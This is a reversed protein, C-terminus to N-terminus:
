ESPVGEVEGRPLGVADWAEDSIFMFRLKLAFELSGGDMFKKVADETVLCWGGTRFPNPMPGKMDEATTDDSISILIIGRKMYGKCKDCPDMNLVGAKRKLTNRLRRDLLIGIDDGCFFCQYM